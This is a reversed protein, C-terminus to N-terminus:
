IVGDRKLAEIFEVSGARNLHLYDSFYEDATLLDSYDYVKLGTALEIKKVFDYLNNVHSLYAPYLPAIVLSVKTGKRQATEIIALFDQMRDETIDFTMEEIADTNEVMGANIKKDLIWNEDNDELYYLSRHFLETNYAYLNSVEVGNGILPSAQNIVEKLRDSESYYSKFEGIVKTDTKTLMTVEILLSKPASYMEYYDQVLARAVSVPLANYSLNLTSTKTAEKIAPQYLMHGRSNGLLLIECKGSGNYIRSYRFKSKLNLDSLLYGLFRDGAFVIAVLLILWIVHTLAKVKSNVEFDDLSDTAAAVLVKEENAPRFYRWLKKM